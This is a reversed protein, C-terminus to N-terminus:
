DLSSEEGECPLLPYDDFSDHEIWPDLLEPVTGDDNIRVCTVPLDPPPDGARRECGNKSVKTSRLLNCVEENNCVILCNPRTCARYGWGLSAHWIKYSNNNYLFSISDNRHRGGLDYNGPIVSIEDKVKIFVRSAKYEPISFAGCVKPYGQVYIEVKLESNDILCLHDIESWDRDDFEAVCNLATKNPKRIPFEDLNNYDIDTGDNDFVDGDSNDSDTQDQDFDGDTSDGDTSNDTSGCALASITFLICIIRALLSKM